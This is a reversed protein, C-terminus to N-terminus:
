GLTAAALAIALEQERGPAEGDLKADLAAQLGRGLEPGRPVGAAILDAGDIELSVQRWRSLYDDIWATGLARALALEVPTRNGALAVAQSPRAPQAAALATEEGAPGLAAVLIADPRPVEGRWLEGELIASVARALDVGNERLDVLGWDGLLEFGRPAAAEAALRYLEAERRDSSVTGLNARRLLTKTEPELAFDFRSAYRAARIARTPDDGFSGPHLVRLRGAELDSCGGHPDILEGPDALPVAMANITFDRRDLDAEIAPAPAVTPLAGPREYAETRASAIDLQHGDFEVKVTGFREHEAVTEAGLAAALEGPDGVVALDIDARGRGLLLDRVAGGVLYVREAGVAGVRELEPYADRLAEALSERPIRLPPM